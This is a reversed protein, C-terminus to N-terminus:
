RIVLVGSMGSGGIGGTANIGGQAFNQVNADGSNAPLGGVGPTLITAQALGPAASQGAAGGVGNSDISPYYTSAIGGNCGGGGAGNGGGDDTRMVASGGDKTATAGTTYNGDNGGNTADYGDGGGGGGGGACALLAGNSLLETRGGGGGGGGSSGVVGANGGVGGGNYGALGGGSANMSTLGGGGGGGIVATLSVNKGATYQGVVYGGGGGKGSYAPAYDFGGGGGGAGWLKATISMSTAPTITYTGAGAIVLPGDSDLNWTSRGNVAPSLNLVRQVGAATISLTNLVKASNTPAIGSLSVSTVSTPKYSFTVVCSSGAAVHACPSADATVGNGLNTLSSWDSSALGGDNFLTATATETGGVSVNSINLATVNWRSKAPALAITVGYTKQGAKNRYSAKVDFSITGATAPTGSILGTNADLALGAPLTGSAVSWTVDSTKYAPDGTVSLLSKLDYNYTEGVTGPPPSASALAVTIDLSVVDYTQEGNFGQYTARATLRGTGAATPTGGIRGDATLYLGAPLTSSVVSWTLGAGTFAPDDGVKVLPALNFSYASGTLAQPPSATDMTVTLSTVAVQYTQEGMKTMYTASITFPWNGSASPVGSLMGTSPDLAVGPPLSGSTVAWKVGYGSYNSDGTVQLAPKFDYSYAAGRRVSPLPAAALTVQINARVVTKGPVPTVVYYNASFSPTCAAAILTALLAKKM